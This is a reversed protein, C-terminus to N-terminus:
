VAVLNRDLGYEDCVRKEYNECHEVAEDIVSVLMDFYVDEIIIPQKKKNDPIITV